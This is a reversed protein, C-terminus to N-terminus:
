RRRPLDGQSFLRDSLEVDLQIEGVRLQTQTGNLLDKIALSRVLWGNGERTIADPDATLVKQLEGGVEYFEIKLPVCREKDIFYVIRGYSSSEEPAPTVRVVSVAIGDLTSGDLMESQAGGSVDQMHGVDEYSFDLGFLSGSAGSPHIRRVRGIEPLYVFMEPDGSEVERLLYASGRDDPPAEIGIRIRSLGEPSRKWFIKAELTRKSGTRDVHRLSVTQVSTQSPLNDRLCAEVQQVTDFASAGAAWGVAAVWTAGVLWTRMVTVMSM